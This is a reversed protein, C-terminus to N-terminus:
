LYKEETLRNLLAAAAQDLNEADFFECVSETKPIEVSLQALPMKPREMGDLKTVPKKKAAFIARVAPIRPVNEPISTISLVGSGNFELDRSGTATIQNVAWNDNKLEIKGVQPIFTTKLKYALMGPVVGRDMDASQQGALILDVNGLDEVAQFLNEAIVGADDSDGKVLVLHDAGMAVGKRLFQIDSEPGYSILTLRANTKEKLQVGTEVANEDYLGLMRSFRKHARSGSLEFDMAPVEYDPVVKALVAIHM